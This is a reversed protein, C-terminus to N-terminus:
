WIVKVESYRRFRRDGTVIPLKEAVATALIMRDFPDRHHMPLSFMEFAHRSEFPLETLRLDRIAERVAQQDMELKGIAFKVAIEIISISSIMRVTDPDEILERATRPIRQLEGRYSLYIVQTDLLVREM